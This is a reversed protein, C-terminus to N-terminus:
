YIFIQPSQRLYYCVEASNALPSRNVNRTRQAINSFIRSAPFSARVHFILSQEGGDGDVAHRQFVADDHGGHVMEVRVVAVAGGPEGFVVPLPGLAAHSQEDDAGAPEVLVARLIVGHGKGAVVRHRAPLLEGVADVPPAALHGDLEVVGPPVDGAPVHGASLGRQGRRRHVAGVGPLRRRLHRHLLDMLHRFLPRLAGDPGLSRAKVHRLDDGGGSVENGLEEGRHGVPPRVLVAAAPLVPAAERQLDDPRHPRRHPRVVGDGHADAAAVEDGAGVGVRLPRGEGRQGRRRSHVQQVHRHAPVLAPHGLDGALHRPAAQGVGSLGDPLRHTDGHGDAAPYVPRLRRFLHQRQAVAVKHGHAPGHQGVRLPGVLGRLAPLVLDPGAHPAILAAKGVCEKVPGDGAKDVGQAAGVFLHLQGRRRFLLVDEHQAAARRAALRGEAKGLPAMMHCQPLLGALQAALQLQGPHQGGPPIEAPEDGIILGIQGPQPYLDLQVVLPRRLLDGGRAKVVHHHGHAARGVLRLQRHLFVVHRHDRGSLDDPLFGEGPGSHYDHAAAVDAHLGGPQQGPLTGQGRLLQEVQGDVM